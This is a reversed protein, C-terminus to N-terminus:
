IRHCGRFIKKASTMCCAGACIRFILTIWNSNDEDVDRYDDFSISPKEGRVVGLLIKHFYFDVLFDEKEAGVAELLSALFRNLALM